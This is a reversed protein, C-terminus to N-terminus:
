TAWTEVVCVRKLRKSIGQINLHTIIIKEESEIQEM